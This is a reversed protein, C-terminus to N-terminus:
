STCTTARDDELARAIERLRELHEGTDKGLVLASDSDELIREAREWVEEFARQASEIVKRGPLSSDLRLTWRIFYYDPDTEEVEAEDYPRGEAVLRRVARMTAEAFVRLNYKHDWYAARISEEIQVFVEAGDRSIWLQPDNDLVMLTMDEPLQELSEDDFDSRKVEVPDGSSARRRIQKWNM